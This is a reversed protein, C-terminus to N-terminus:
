RSKQLLLFHASANIERKNGYAGHKKNGNKYCINGNSFRYLLGPETWIMYRDQAARSAEDEELNNMEYRDFKVWGRLRELGEM